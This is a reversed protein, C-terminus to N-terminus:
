FWEPRVLATGLYIFLFATILATLYIMAARELDARLRRRFGSV